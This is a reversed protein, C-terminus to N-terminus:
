KKDEGEREIGDTAPVNQTMAAKRFRIHKVAKPNEGTRPAVLVSM